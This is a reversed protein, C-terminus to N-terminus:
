KKILKKLDDMFKDFTKVKESEQINRESLVYCGDTDMEVIARGKKAPKKITLTGIYHILRNRQYNSTRRLSNLVESHCFM